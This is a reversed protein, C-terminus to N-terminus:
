LDKEFHKKSAERAARKRERDERELRREEQKKAKKAEKEKKKRDKDWDEYTVADEGAAIRRVCEDEWDKKRKKKREEEEKKKKEAELKDEYLVSTKNNFSFVAQAAAREM